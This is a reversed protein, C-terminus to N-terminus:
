TTQSVFIWNDAGNSKFTTVIDDTGVPNVLGASAIITDTAVTAITLPNTTANNAVISITANPGAARASPLTVTQPASTTDITALQTQPALLIAPDGVQVENFFFNQGNNIDRELYQETM